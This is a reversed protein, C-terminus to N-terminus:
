RKSQDAPPAESTLAPTRQRQQTRVPVALHKHRQHLQPAVKEAHGVVPHHPLIQAIQKVDEEEERARNGDVQKHEVAQPEQHGREDFGDFDNRISHGHETQEDRRRQTGAHKM